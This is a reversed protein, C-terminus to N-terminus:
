FVDFAVGYYLREFLGAVVLRRRRLGQTHAKSRQTIPDFFEPNFLMFTELFREHGHSASEDM